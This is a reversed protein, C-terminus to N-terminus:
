QWLKITNIIFDDMTNYNIIKCALSYGVISFHFLNDVVSKDGFMYLKDEVNIIIFERYNCDKTDGCYTFGERCLFEKINANSEKIVHLEDIDNRLITIRKLVDGITKFDLNEKM